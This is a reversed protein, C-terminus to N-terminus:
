EAPQAANALVVEAEFPHGPLLNPEVHVTCTARAGGLSAVGPEGAGLLADLDGRALNITLTWGSTSEVLHFDSM